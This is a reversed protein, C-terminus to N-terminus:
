PAKCNPLCEEVDSLEEHYKDIFFGYLTFHNKITQDSEKGMFAIFADIGSEMAKVLNDQVDTLCDPIDLSGVDRKIEQLDGIPGSLSIRSTSNAVEFADDWEEALNQLEDIALEAEEPPCYSNTCGVLVLAILAITIIRKNM